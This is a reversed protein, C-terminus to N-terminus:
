WISVKCCDFPNNPITAPLFSKAVVRLDRCGICSHRAIRPVRTRTHWAVAVAIDVERRNSRCYFCPRCCYFGSPIRLDVHNAWCELVEYEIGTYLRDTSSTKSENFTRQGHWTGVTTTSRGRDSARLFQQARRRRVEFPFTVESSHETPALQVLPRVTLTVKFILSHTAPVAVELCFLTPPSTLTDVQQLSGSRSLEALM